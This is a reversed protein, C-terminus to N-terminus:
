RRRVWRNNTRLTDNAALASDAALVVSVFAISSRAVAAGRLATMRADSFRRTTLLCYSSGLYASASTRDLKIVREYLNLATTCDGARQFAIGLALPTAPYEPWLAMARRMAIEGAAPEGNRILDDGLWYQARASYPADTVLARVLTFNDRWDNTRESSHSAGVVLLAGLAVASVRQLPQPAAALRPLILAAVGAIAIVIGVSPLFLTREALLIGTPLAINAVLALSIPLWVLGMALIPWRRWSAVVIALWGALWAAGVLHAWSPTPRLTILQPAYDAYLRAPWLFLRVFEPVLGLMIWAREGMTRGVLAAHPLGASVGGVISAQLLFWLVATTFLAYHLARVRLWGDAPAGFLPRLVILELAILLAPLILAHEKFGLSLAFCLAICVLATPRMVGRRREHAYCALAGVVFLAVWLEAQGVVNAVAEVHVPHVAFLLAACLAAGPSVLARLFVLVSASVVAYLAISTAHFVMAAGSGAAYQLAFAVLTLPRWAAKQIGPTSWYTSSFFGSFNDLTHVRANEVVIPLDDLAFGNTLGVLSTALAAFIVLAISRWLSQTLPVAGSHYALLGGRRGEV